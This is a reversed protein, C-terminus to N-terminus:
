RHSSKSVCVLSKTGEIIVSDSVVYFQQKESRASTKIEKRHRLSPSTFRSFLSHREEKMLSVGSPQLVNKLV